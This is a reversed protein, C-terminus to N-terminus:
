LREVGTTGVPHLLELFMGQGPSFVTFPLSIVSQHCPQTADNPSVVGDITWVSPLHTQGHRVDLFPRVAAFRPPHSVPVRCTPFARPAEGALGVGVPEHGGDLGVQDAAVPGVRSQRLGPQGLPGLPPEDGLRMEFGLGEGPVARVEVNMDQGREAVVLKTVDVPHGGFFPDGIEPTRDRARRPAGPRWTSLAM